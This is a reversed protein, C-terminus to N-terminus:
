KQNIVVLTSKKLAKCETELTISDGNKFRWLHVGDVPAAEEAEATYGQAKLADTMFTKLEEPKLATEFV